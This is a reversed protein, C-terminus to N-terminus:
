VNNKHRLLEKKWVFIFFILVCEFRVDYSRSYIRKEIRKYPIWLILMAPIICSRESLLFNYRRNRYVTFTFVTLKPSISTKNEAMNMQFQVMKYFALREVNSSTSSWSVTETKNNRFVNATPYMNAGSCFAIENVLRSNWLVLRIEDWTFLFEVSNSM